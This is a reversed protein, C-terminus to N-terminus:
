SKNLDEDTYLGTVDAVEQESVLNESIASGVIEVCLKVLKQRYKAESQSLEDDMLNESCDLLDKYTNEFRCYSMNSM